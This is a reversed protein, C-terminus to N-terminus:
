RRCIRRYVDLTAHANVKADHRQLAVARATGVGKEAEEPSDFWHRIAAALSAPDCSPVLKGEIGDKLVSPTGGVYTAICPTGVLMAEGLSNPSNECLSPLVFLEACALEQAVKEASLSPLPVIENEVGLSRILWRLYMSYSDDRLRDRFSRSPGLKDNAAAVRLQIDPYDAKLAAIARILWHAGKLAYGAAAGCYITHRKIKDPNRRIVYFPDRLTENVHFYTAHPHYYDVWARDWETRGIFYQQQRIVRSEQVARKERWFTQDWLLTSRNKLLRLNFKTWWTEKPSLGGTFHPHYGGILGQLSVVVPKGCYIEPPMCGFFYEAGQVHIIDPNFEEIVQKCQKLIEKPIKDYYTKALGGFSVYRVRGITIDCHRRDLCMVCYENASDVELLGQLMSELWGCTNGGSWGMARCAIPHLGGNFWLIRM